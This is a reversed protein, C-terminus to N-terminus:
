LRAEAEAEAKVELRIFLACPLSIVERRYKEVSDRDWLGNVVSIAVVMVSRM